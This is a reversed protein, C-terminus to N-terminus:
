YKEPRSHFIETLVNITMICAYTAILSFGIPRTLHFDNLPVAILTGVLILLLGLGSVLLTPSFDIQYVGDMDSWSAESSHGSLLYSGSIGIGLLLNLLPGAFCASIAMVPHGLRAITVNAVLDGLSNGVAFVTLGLIADSLGVILGVTQLISVVEDVITMIFMVSVLFGLGCRAMQTAALLRPSLSSEGHKAFYRDDRKLRIYIAATVGLGLMLALSVKWGIKDSDSSSLIAWTIFAPAFTCQALMLFRHAGRRTDEEGDSVVSCCSSDDQLGDAVHDPEDDKRPGDGGGLNLPSGHGGPLQRLTSSIERDRQRHGQRMEREAAEVREEASLTSNMSPSLGLHIIREEDAEEDEEDYPRRSNLDQEEGELRVAGEAEGSRGEAEDDIVPLTLNLLLIAPATLISITAGTWSKAHLHRLSPFLAWRFIRIRRKLRELRTMGAKRLRIREDITMKMPSSAPVMDTTSPSPFSVDEEGGEGVSVKISPVPSLGGGWQPIDLKPLSSRMEDSQSMGERFPMAPGPLPECGDMPTHERWPDDILASPEPGFGARGPLTNGSEDGSADPSFHHAGSVSKSRDRNYDKRNAPPVLMGPGVSVVRNHGRGFARARERELSRGASRRNAANHHHHPLFREPDRSQFVELSRDASSDERLSAVVDRFEIAGLLSHRPLVGPRIRSQRGRVPTGAPTMRPSAPHSNTTGVEARDDTANANAWAEFPDYDPDYESPSLLQRPSHGSPVSLLHNRELDASGVTGYPTHPRNLLSSPALSRNSATDSRSDYEDRAAAILLRKQRRREQWWGGFIVTTAYAVYLGILIFSEFLRLKGDLLFALTLAVAVTFFGVDRCFPWAKVRFPAILMMSGSIVSVIFSAAGLLEGIALSGSGSKMAGFTSFVDPSGNGFALFTVGATSENLGLRSAITSLNPCFFDSAVVGVWSFLFLMWCLITTLAAARLVALGPYWRSSHKPPTRDKGSGGGPSMETDPDRAGREVGICYYFELYNLHGTPECHQSVHACLEAPPLDLPLPECSPTPPQSTPSTSSTPTSATTTTTTTTTTTAAATTTTTLKTTPPHAPQSEPRTHTATAPEFVQEPHDVRRFLGLNLSPPVQWAATLGSDFSPSTRPALKQFPSPSRLRNSGRWCALQIAVVIAFILWADKRKSLHAM